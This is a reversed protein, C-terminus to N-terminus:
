AVDGVDSQLAEQLRHDVRAERCDAGCASGARHGPYVELKSPLTRLERYLTDHVLARVEFRPPAHISWM